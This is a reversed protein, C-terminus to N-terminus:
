VDGCEGMQLIVGPLEDVVRRLEDTVEVPDAIEPEGVLTIRAILDPKKFLSKPVSLAVKIRRQGADINPQSMNM